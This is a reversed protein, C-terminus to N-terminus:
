ARGAAAEAARTRGSLRILEEHLEFWITHYSDILPAAMFRAEGGRVRALAGAFRRAYGALRPVLGAAEALIPALQADIAGLRDLIEADYAADSHDNPEGARIQWDAVLAKFSGNVDHFREYLADAAAPDLAAREEAWASEAAAQGEPTLRAGLRTESALGHGLLAAVEAAVDRGTMAALAETKAFGRLKLAVLLDAAIERRPASM